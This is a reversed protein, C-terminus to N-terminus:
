ASDGHGRGGNDPALGRLARGISRRPTSQDGVDKAQGHVWVITLILAVFYFIIAAGIHWGPHIAKDLLHEKDGFIEHDFMEVVGALAFSGIAILLYSTTRDFKREREDRVEEALRNEKEVARQEDEYLRQQHEIARDHVLEAIRLQADLEKLRDSIRSIDFLNEMFALHHGSGLLESPTLFMRRNRIEVIKDHLRHLVDAFETFRERAVDSAPLEQATRLAIKGKTFESTERIEHTWQGVLSVFSVVLEICEEYSNYFWDPAAPMSLVTTNTTGVAFDVAFSDQKLLNKWDATRYCVWEEPAVAMRTLPQLLLPGAFRAIEDETADSRSGDAAEVAASRIELVVHFHVDIDSLVEEDSRATTEAKDSKFLNSLDRVVTKAYETLNPIERSSEIGACTVAPECMLNSARRLGANIECLEPSSLSKEIRVYHNGRTTIRVKVRYDSIGNGDETTVTVDPMEIDVASYEPNNTDDHISPRFGRWQWLDTLDAPLVSTPIVGGLVGVQSDSQASTLNEHIDEGYFGDITFPYIYIFKVDNFQVVSTKDDSSRERLTKLIRTYPLLDSALVDPGLERLKAKSIELQDLAKAYREDSPAGNRYDRAVKGFYTLGSYFYLQTDIIEKLCIRVPYSLESLANLRNEFNEHARVLEESMKNFAHLCSSYLTDEIAMCTRLANALSMVLDVAPLDPHGPIEPKSKKAAELATVAADLEDEVTQHDITYEWEKMAWAFLGYAFLVAQEPVAFANTWMDKDSFAAAMGAHSSHEALGHTALTAYIVPTERRHFEETLKCWDVEALDM